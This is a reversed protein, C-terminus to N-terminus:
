SEVNSERSKGAQQTNQGSRQKKLYEGFGDDGLWYNVTHEVGVSTITAGALGDIKHKANPDAPNVSGKIVDIAPEGKEFAVKGRWQRKWIPNDVEGGLGPTEGHEYYNIGRITTLDPDLALFGYMTSWLGKGVIPLVLSSLKGDKEVRYVAYYPARSGIGSIDKAAPIKVQLKADGAATRADYAEGKPLQSVPVVDGTKLDVYQKKIVGDKPDFLTQVVERESKLSMLKKAANAGVLNEITADIKPRLAQPADRHADLLRFLSVQGGEFYNYLDAAHEADFEVFLATMAINKQQDLQKNEEQRDKLGVAAVSVGIACVLCLLISVRLINGISDRSM